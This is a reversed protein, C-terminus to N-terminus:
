IGFEAMRKAIAKPDYAAMIEDYLVPSWIKIKDQGDGTVLVEKTLSAYERLMPPILIRGQSDISCDEAPHFVRCIFAKVYEDMSPARQVKAKLNEWGEITYVVLCRDVLDRTLILKGEYKEKFIERFKAPM